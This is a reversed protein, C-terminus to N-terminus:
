KELSKDQRFCTTNKEPIAHYNGMAPLKWIVFTVIPLVVIQPLNKHGRDGLVYRMSIVPFGQITVAAAGAAACWVCARVFLVVVRSLDDCLICQQSQQHM